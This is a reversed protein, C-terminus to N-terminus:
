QYKTVLHLSLVTLIEDLGIGMYSCVKFGTM